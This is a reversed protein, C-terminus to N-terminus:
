RDRVVAEAILHLLSELTQLRMQLRQELGALREDIEAATLARPSPAKGGAAMPWAGQRCTLEIVAWTPKKSAKGIQAELWIQADAIKGFRAKLAKLECQDPPLLGASPLSLADESPMSPCEAIGMEDVMQRVRANQQGITRFLDADSKAMRAMLEAFRDSLEGM